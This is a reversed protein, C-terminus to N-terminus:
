PERAASLEERVREAVRRTTGNLKTSLDERLERGSKPAMMLAASAGIIMGLGILGISGFVNGLASSRTQLGLAALVDDKSFNRIDNLKMRWGGEGRRKLMWATGRPLDVGCHRAKGAHVNCGTWTM